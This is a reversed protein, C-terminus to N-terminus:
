DALFVDDCEMCLLKLGPKGWVKTGCKCQYRARTQQKQQVVIVAEENLQEVVALGTIVLSQEAMQQMPASGGGVSPALDLSALCAAQMVQKQSPFRDLWSIRFDETILQECAKLFAGGEIAYDAMQDGVMRGGPLGTSSPMLGISEMKTAWEHNHYKTRGPTGYHHQWLHVQEHAITQLVEVLPQVAFYSPNLAIEDIKTGDRDVFRNRSFYGFTHKERQLTILCDPLTGEFLTVNFHDYAQQLEAYAQTTPKM